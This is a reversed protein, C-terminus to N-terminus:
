RTTRCISRSCRTTPPPPWSLMQRGDKLTKVEVDEPRNFRTGLFVPRQLTARGDLATLGSPDTVVVAGPLPTGNKYTLPIWTAAGTAEEVKGDGVRLVFTQGAAFFDDGNAAEPNASAFRLIHGDRNEDVFYLTNKHDFALGEHAVRPLIARHRIAVDAPAALPNTVEFLRGYRSTPAAPDSWSEEATLM